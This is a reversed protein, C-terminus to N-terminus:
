SFRLGVALSILRSAANTVSVRGASMVMLLFSDADGAAIHMKVM